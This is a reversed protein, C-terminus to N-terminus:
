IIATTYLPASSCSDTLESAASAKRNRAFFHRPFTLGSSKQPPPRGALHTWFIPTLGDAPSVAYIFRNRRPFLQPIPKNNQEPPKARPIQNPIIFKQARICLWRNPPSYIAKLQPHGPNCAGTRRTSISYAVLSCSGANLAPPSMNQLVTNSQYFSYHEVPLIFLIIHSSIPSFSALESNM